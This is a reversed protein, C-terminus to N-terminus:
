SDLPLILLSAARVRASAAAHMVFSSCPPIGPREPYWAFWRNWELLSAPRQLKGHFIAFSPWCTGFSEGM